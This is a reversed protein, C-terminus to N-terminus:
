LTSEAYGFGFPACADALPLTRLTLNIHSAVTKDPTYFSSEMDNLKYLHPPNAGGHRHPAALLMGGFVVAVAVMTKRMNM